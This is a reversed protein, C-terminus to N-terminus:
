NQGVRAKVDEDNQSVMTLLGAKRKEKLRYSEGQIQVLHSHHLLRDLMAGTLTADQAFANHWQGFSLNSTVIIPGREYRKAVVQFFHNAEERGFPLYGIEDIILLKPAIVNRKIFENLKGQRHACSLQLMLDSAAVFRTKILRQTALYGLAIALHTKGVGSPGLLVVNENREVFALSSLEQILKKPVGVAFKFDFDDLTKIASFGAFKLLSQRTHSQRGESEVQLLNELYESFSSQKKAAEQGLYAFNLKIQDLGLQECLEVIRLESTM